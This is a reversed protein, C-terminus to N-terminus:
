TADEQRAENAQDKRAVVKLYAALRRHCASITTKPTTGTKKAFVDLLVVADAAGYYVIRWTADADNIRLEHCQGGIVPMPRSHPLALLEGQQLRRLLFGAEIRAAKSFPPTKIEGHLWVLPKDRQPTTM